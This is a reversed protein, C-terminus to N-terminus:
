KIKNVFDIVASVFEPKLPLTPDAYTALNKDRDAPAQKLVHNMDPIIQLVADSKAKKLKEANSVNLQVDTTGHVILVPIKLKKIARQPDYSMWSMLYPQIAPRAVGYLSADVNDQTKGRALSDIIASFRGSIYDPQSKAQEKLIYYAPQGAGAVSIFGSVPQDASAVMGILSGESHGLVIVKSFRADDHLNNILGVADDIYNDIRIQSEKTSSVTEGVLRKDYRLSAIGSKSLAAALMKYSNANLGMKPSNGNRDTPGSGPIILVVPVKGTANAPMTLTGSITAGMGKYTFASEGPELQGPQAVVAQAPDKYNDFLLGAFQNAQNINVKMALVSKNFTAKYTAIGKDMAIFSVQDLKGLQTQLQSIMQRNKDAPLLAKVEPAMLSFISDAQNKNYYHQFRAVAKKYAAPESQAFAATLSLLLIILFPARM